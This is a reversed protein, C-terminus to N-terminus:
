RGARAAERGSHQRTAEGICRRRALAPLGRCERRGPRARPDRGRRGATAPERRVHAVGLSARDAGRCSDAASRRPRPAGGRLVRAGEADENAPLRVARRRPRPPVGTAEGGAPLRRRADDEDVARAGAVRGPLAVGGGRASAQVGAAHVSAQARLDAGAGDLDDLELGDPAHATFLQRQRKSFLKSVRTTGALVSKVSGPDLLRKMTGSCVFGGPVADVEVNFGTASRTAAPLESPVVPRLKVISDDGKGQIRRARVVVGCRDLALDPTDFFVVQRIQAELPDM